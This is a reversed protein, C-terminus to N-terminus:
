WRHTGPGCAPMKSELQENKIQLLLPNSKLVRLLGEFM